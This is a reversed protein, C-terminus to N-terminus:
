ENELAVVKQVRRRFRDAGDFEAALFAAVLAKALEVGIIRGGLCLVNMDDHVVGQGASYTDHCLCARIGKLKNAALVVGVGSGCIAIGRDARDDQIARGVAAAFDPYDDHPDLSHAGFDLAEHGAEQIADIVAQKITLGGHDTGLAVRM